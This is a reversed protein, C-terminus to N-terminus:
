LGLLQKKKAEFEEQTIIGLDLLEKYQKLQEIPSASASETKAAPHATEGDPLQRLDASHCSPCRSYDVVKARNREAMTSHVYMDLGTGGVAAALSGIGSIASMAANHQNDKLDQKTYCFIHGCVNCQMRIEKHLEAYEAASKAALQARRAAEAEEQTKKPEIEVVEARAATKMQKKATEILEKLRSKQYKDAAVFLFAKAEGNAKGTVDMSGLSFGIKDISGYPYFRNKYANKCLIGTDTFACYDGSANNFEEIITGTNLQAPAQAAAPAVPAAPFQEAGTKAGCAFCFRAGEDLKTGCKICFAM